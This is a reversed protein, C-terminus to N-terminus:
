EATQLTHRQTAWQLCRKRALIAFDKENVATGLLFYNKQPRLLLIASDNSYRMDPRRLQSPDARLTVNKVDM